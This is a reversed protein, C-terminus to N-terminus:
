VFKIALGAGHVAPVISFDSKHYPEGAFHLVATDAGDTLKWSCSDAGTQTYSLLTAAEAFNTAIVLDGKAFFDDITGHFSSARDLILQEPTAGGFTVTELNSVSDSFQLRSGDSLNFNGTGNVPGTLKDYDDNLNATGNNTFAGPVTLTAKNALTPGEGQLNITGDNVVSDAKLMSRAPLASNGIDVTGHNRLTGNIHLWSGGDGENQDLAVVGENALAGTTTVSAGNSLSLAGGDGWIIELGTLASNSRTGSADAVFSSPGALSLESRYEITTIQGSAFELLADGSLNIHGSLVGAAGFGAASAVDLTAEATSSGYLDIWGIAGYSTFNALSAAEITSAASLTGDSPGIQIFGGGGNTLAGGITLSSGGDGSSADLDLAGNNYSGYNYVGGTVSSAGADIFTLASYNTISNVTGFSATVEPDGENIVVDSSATPVGASWANWDGPTDWNAAGDLWTDIAM